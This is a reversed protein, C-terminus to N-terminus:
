RSRRIKIDWNSGFAIDGYIRYKYTNNEADTVTLTIDTDGRAQKDSTVYVSKGSALTDTDAKWIIGDDLNNKISTVHCPRGKNVIKIETKDSLTYVPLYNTYDDFDINPMFYPEISAIIYRGGLLAVGGTYRGNNKRATNDFSINAKALTSKTITTAQGGSAAATHYAQEVERWGTDSYLGNDYADPNYEFPIFKIDNGRIAEPKLYIFMTTDTASKLKIIDNLTLNNIADATNERRYNFAEEARANDKYAALTPTIFYGTGLVILLFPLALLYLSGNKSGRDEKIAYTDSWSDHWGHGGFFSFAEFPMYRTFTRRAIQGPSPKYGGGDAVRTETLIKAPTYNLLYEFLFHYLLRLVLFCVIFLIYKKKTEEFGGNYDFRTSLQLYGALIPTTILVFIFDDIHLHLFRQWRSALNYTGVEEGGPNTAVTIQLPIDRDLWKLAKWSLALLLASWIVYVVMYPWEIYERYQKVTLEVVLGALGLVRHYILIAYMLRILRTEKKNKLFIIAGIAFLLFMGIDIFNVQDYEGILDEKDLFGFTFFSLYGRLWLLAISHPEPLLHSLKSILGTIAIFLTSFTIKREM